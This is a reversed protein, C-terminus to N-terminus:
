GGQNDNIIGVYLNNDIFAFEGQTPATNLASSNKNTLVFSGQFQTLGTFKTGADSLFMHTSVGDGSYVAKLSGTLGNSVHLLQNYTTGVPQNILSASM